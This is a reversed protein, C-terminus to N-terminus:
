QRNYFINKYLAAIYVTDTFYMDEFYINAENKMIRYFEPLTWNKLSSKRFPDKHSQVYSM